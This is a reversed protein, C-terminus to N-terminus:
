RIKEFTQRSWHLDYVSRASRLAENIIEDAEEPSIPKRQADVCSFYENLGDLIEQRREPSIDKTKHIM